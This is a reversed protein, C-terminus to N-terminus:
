RDRQPQHPRFRAAGILALLGLGLFVFSGPESVRSTIELTADTATFSGFSAIPGSFPTLLGATSCGSFFTTIQGAITENFISVSSISCGDSHLAGGVSESLLSSAPITTSSTLISPEDLAWNVTSAASNPSGPLDLSYTYLADARSVAPVLLFLCLGWVPSVLRM